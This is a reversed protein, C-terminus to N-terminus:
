NTPEFTFPASPGLPLLNVKLTSSRSATHKGVVKRLAQPIRDFPFVKIGKEINRPRPSPFAMIQRFLEGTRPTGKGVTIPGFLELNRRIRNKEELTFLVGLLGELLNVLDVSTIYYAEKPADDVIPPGTWRIVSIIMQDAEKRPPSGIEDTPAPSGRMNKYHEHSIPEFQCYLTNEQHRRQFQLLRRGAQLEEPTWKHVMASVDTLLVLDARNLVGHYHKTPYLSPKPPLIADSASSRRMPAQQDIAPPKPKLTPYPRLGPSPISSSKEPVKIELQCSLSSKKRKRKPSSPISEEPKSFSVTAITDKKQAPVPPSSISSSSATPSRSTLTPALSASSGPIVIAGLEANYNSCSQVGESPFNSTPVPQEPQSSDPLMWMSPNDSPFAQPFYDASELSSRLHTTYTSMRLRPQYTPMFFLDNLFPPGVSDGPVAFPTTYGLNSIADQLSAESQNLKDSSPHIAEVRQLVEQHLSHPRGASFMDQSFDNLGFCQMDPTMPLAPNFGLSSLNQTFSPDQNNMTSVKYQFHGFICSQIPVEVGNDEGLSIIYLPVRSGPWGTEHYPPISASLQSYDRSVWPITQMVKMGVGIKLNLDLLDPCRDLIAVLRDGHEGTQPSFELVRVPLTQFNLGRM